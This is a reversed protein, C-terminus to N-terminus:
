FHIYSYKEIEGKTPRRLLSTFEQNFRMIELKTKKTGAYVGHIWAMLVLKADLFMWVSSIKELFYSGRWLEM